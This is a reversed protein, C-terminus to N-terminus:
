AQKKTKQEVPVLEDNILDFRIIKKVEKVPEIDANQHEKLIKAMDEAEREYIYTYIVPYQKTISNDSITTNTSKKQSNDIGSLSEVKKEPTSAQKKTQNSKKTAM